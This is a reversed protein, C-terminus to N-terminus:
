KHPEDGRGSKIIKTESNCGNKNFKVQVIPLQKYYHM